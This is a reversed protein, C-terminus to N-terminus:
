FVNIDRVVLAYLYNPQNCSFDTLRYEMHLEKRKFLSCINHYNRALKWVFFEVILDGENESIRNIGVADRFTTCEILLQIDDKGISNRAYKSFEGYKDINTITLVIKTSANDPFTTLECRYPPEKPKLISDNTFM